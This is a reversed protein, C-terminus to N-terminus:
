SQSHKIHLVPDSIMFLLFCEYIVTMIDHWFNNYLELSLLFLSLFTFSLSSGFEQSKQEACIVLSFNSYSLRYLSQNHVPHGPSSNQCHLIKEEKYCGSQSMPDGVKDGTSVPLEKWQPLAAPSYASSEGGNLASTLFLPV